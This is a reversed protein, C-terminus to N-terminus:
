FSRLHLTDQFPIEAYESDSLTLQVLNQDM